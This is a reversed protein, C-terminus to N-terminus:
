LSTSPATSSRTTSAATVERGAAPDAASRYLAHGSFWSLDGKGAVGANDILPAAIDDSSESDDAGCATLFLLFPALLILIKSNM